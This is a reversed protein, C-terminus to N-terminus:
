INDLKEAVPAIRKLFHKSTKNSKPYKEPTENQKTKNKCYKSKNEKNETCM